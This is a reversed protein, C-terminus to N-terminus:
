SSGCVLIAIPQAASSRANLDAARWDGCLQPNVGGVYVESKM